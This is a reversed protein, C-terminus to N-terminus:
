KGTYIHKNAQRNDIHIYTQRLSHRGAQINVQMCIYMYINAQRGTGKDTYSNAQRGTHKDAYMDSQVYINAHRGTLIYAYRSAQIGATRIKQRELEKGTHRDCEM